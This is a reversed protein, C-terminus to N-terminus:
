THSKKCVRYERRKIVDLPRTAIGKCNKVDVEVYGAVRAIDRAKKTDEDDEKAEAM